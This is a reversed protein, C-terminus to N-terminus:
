KKVKKRPITLTYGCLNKQIHIDCKCKNQIAKVQELTYCYCLRDTKLQRVSQRIFVNFDDYGQENNM